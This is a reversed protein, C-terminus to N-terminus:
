ILGQVISQRYNSPNSKEKLLFPHIVADFLQRSDQQHGKEVSNVIAFSAVIFVLDELALNVLSCVHYFVM